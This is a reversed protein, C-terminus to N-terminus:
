HDFYDNISVFRCVLDVSSNLARSTSTKSFLVPLEKEFSIGFLSRELLVNSVVEFTSSLGLSGILVMWHTDM